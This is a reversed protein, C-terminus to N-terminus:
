HWERGGSYGGRRDQRGRLPLAYCYPVRCRHSPCPGAFNRADRAHRAPRRPPPALLPSPYPICRAGLSSSASWAKGSRPSATPWGGRSAGPSGYRQSRGRRSATLPARTTGRAPSTPM